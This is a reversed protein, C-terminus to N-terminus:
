SVCPSFCGLQRSFWTKPEFERLFLINGLAFPHNELFKSGNAALFEHNKEFKLGNAKPLWTEGLFKPM